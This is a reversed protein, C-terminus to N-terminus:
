ICTSNAYAYILEEDVHGVQPQFAAHSTRFHLYRPRSQPSDSCESVGVYITAYVDLAACIYVPSCSDEREGISGAKLNIDVLNSFYNCAM